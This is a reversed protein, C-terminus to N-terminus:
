TNFKGTKKKNKGNRLTQRFNQFGFSNRLTHGDSYGTKPPKLSFVIFLLVVLLIHPTGTWVLFLNGASGAPFGRSLSPDSAHARVPPGQGEYPVVVKLVARVEVACAPLSVSLRSLFRGFLFM